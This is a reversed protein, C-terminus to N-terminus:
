QRGTALDQARTRCGFEDDVGKGVIDNEGVQPHALQFVERTRLM